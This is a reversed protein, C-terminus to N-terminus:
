DNVYILYGVGTCFSRFAQGRQIRSVWVHFLTVEPAPRLLVARIQMQPACTLWLFCIHKRLPRRASDSQLAEGQLAVPPRM